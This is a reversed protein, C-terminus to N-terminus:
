TSPANTLVLCVSEEPKSVSVPHLVQQQHPAVGQSMYVAGKEAPKLGVLAAVASKDIIVCRLPLM